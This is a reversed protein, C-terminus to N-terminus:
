MLFKRRSAQYTKNELETLAVILDIQISAVLVSVNGLTADATSTTWIRDDHFHHSFVLFCGYVGCGCAPSLRHRRDAM